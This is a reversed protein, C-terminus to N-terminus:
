FVPLAGDKSLPTPKILLNKGHMKAKRVAAARKSAPQRLCGTVGGSVVAVVREVAVVAGVCVVAEVLADVVAGTVMGVSVVWGVVM